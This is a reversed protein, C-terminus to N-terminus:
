TTVSLLATAAKIVGELRYMPHWITWFGVLHTTGCALIFSGFALFIWHFALDKRKRAFICLLIPITYCAVAITLDSVANLWLVAPNWLYCTGHPMFDSSFLKRFFELM